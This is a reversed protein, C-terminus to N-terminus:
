IRAGRVFREFEFLQALIRREYKKRPKEAASNYAAWWREGLRRSHQKHISALVVAGSRIAYVHDNRAREFDFKGAWFYDNLQAIGYDCMEVEEQTVRDVRIYCVKLDSRFGGSEHALISAYIEPALKAGPAHSMIARALVNANARKNLSRIYAAIRKERQELSAKEYWKRTDKKVVVEIKSQQPRQGADFGTRMPTALALAVALFIVLNKGKM